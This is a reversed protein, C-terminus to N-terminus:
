ADDYNSFPLERSSARRSSRDMPEGASSGDDCACGAGGSRERGFTHVEAEQRAGRGAM